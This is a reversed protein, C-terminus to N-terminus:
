ELPLLRRLGYVLSIFLDGGWISLLEKQQWPEDGADTKNQKKGAPSQMEKCFKNNEKKAYCV